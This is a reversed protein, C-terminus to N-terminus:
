EILGSEVTSLAVRWEALLSILIARRSALVAGLLPQSDSRSERILFSGDLLLQDLRPMTLCTQCEPLHGLEDTM